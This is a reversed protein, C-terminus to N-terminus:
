RVAAAAEAQEARLSSQLSSHLIRLTSTSQMLAEREDPNRNALNTIENISAEIRGLRDAVTGEGSSARRVAESTITWVDERDNTRRSLDVMQGLAALDSDMQNRELPETMGATAKRLRTVHGSLESWSCTGSKIKDLVRTYETNFEDYNM